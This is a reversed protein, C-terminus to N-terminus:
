INTRCKGLKASNEHSEPDEQRKKDQNHLQSRLKLEPFPFRAWCKGKREYGTLSMRFVVWGVMVDFFRGMTKRNRARPVSRDIPPRLYIM